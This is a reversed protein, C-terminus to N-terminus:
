QYATYQGEDFQEDEEGDIILDLEATYGFFDLTIVRSWGYEYELEGFIADNITM